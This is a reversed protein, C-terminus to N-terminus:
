SCVVKIRYPSTKKEGLIVSNEGQQLPAKYYGRGRGITMGNVTTGYRSGLDLVYLNGDQQIIECHNVSVALPPGESAIHMHNGKRKAANEDDKHYGGIRFPLHAVPMELSGKVSSTVADSDATVIVKAVDESSVPQIQEPLQPKAPVPPAETHISASLRKFVSMFAPVLRPPAQGLLEMVEIGTLTDVTTETLARATYAYPPAGDFLAMEGLMDGDVYEGIRIEGNPMSKVIEVNGNQIIYAYSPIEGERFLIEGANLQKTAM